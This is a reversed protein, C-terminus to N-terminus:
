MYKRMRALVQAAYANISPGGYQSSNSNTNANGPGAYWAKAAGGAGYQKFYSTLKGQAIKEQLKPHNLYQQVTIDRGITEKDWGGPKAFNSDLIQYKGYATGSRTPVGVAKYNGGSEQSSIAKLFASLKSGGAGAGTPIGKNALAAMTADISNDTSKQWNAPAKNGKGGGGLGVPAAAEPQRYNTMIEDAADRRTVSEVVGQQLTSLLDKLM